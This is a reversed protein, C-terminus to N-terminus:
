AHISDLPLTIQFETYTNLQSKFHIYGSHALCVNKVHSLGIGWNNLTQKTSYLPTFIKNQHKKNIGIGNDRIKVCLWPLETWVDIEVQGESKNSREVADTANSLLNIIAETILTGDGYFYIPEDTYNKQLSTSSPFIVRSCAQEICFKIDVSNYKLPLGNYTDLFSSAKCIFNNAHDCIEQLSSTIDSVDSSNMAKEALLKICFLSNKYSHFIHRIDYLNINNKSPNFYKVRFSKENLININIILIFLVILLCIIILINLSLTYYINSIRYDHINYNQLLKRSPMSFLITLFIGYLTTHLFLLLKLHNQIFFIKTRRLARFLILCPISCIILSIYNFIETFRIMVMPWISSSIHRQIYYDEVKSPSNLYLHIFCSSLLFLISLMMYVAFKSDKIINSLCLFVSSFIFLIIAFHLVFRLEYISLPIKKFSAVLSIRSFYSAIHQRTRLIFIINTILLLCIALLDISFFLSYLNKPNRIFVYLVIILSFLLIYIM